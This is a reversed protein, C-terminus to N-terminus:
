ISAEAEPEPEAEASAAEVGRALAEGLEGDIMVTVASAGLHVVLQRDNVWFACEFEDPRLVFGTSRSGVHFFLTEVEVPDARLLVDVLREDLEGRDFRGSLIGALFPPGGAGSFLVLVDRGILQLLASLTEEYGLVSQTDRRAGAFRNESL